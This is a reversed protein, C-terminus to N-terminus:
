CPESALSSQLAQANGTFSGTRLMVYVRYRNECQGGDLSFIVQHPVTRAGRCFLPPPYHLWYKDLRSQKTIAAFGAPQEGFLKCGM